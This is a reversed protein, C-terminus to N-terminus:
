NSPRIEVRVGPEELDSVTTVRYLGPALDIPYSKGAPIQWQDCSAQCSTVFTGQGPLTSESASVDYSGADTIEVLENRVLRSYSEGTFGVVAGDACSTPSETRWRGQEWALPEGVCIPIACIPGGYIDVDALMEDLSEGFSDQFTARFDAATTPRSTAYWFQEFAEPGYRTLMWYVLYHGVAYVSREELASEAEIAIDIEDPTFSYYNPPTDQVLASALGEQLLPQRRPWASAQIAHVLEHEDISRTSFIDFHGDERDICGGFSYSCMEELLPSDVFYYTTPLIQDPDTGLYLAVAEMWAETLPVTGDCVVIDDDAAYSLFRGQAQVPPLGDDGDDHQCSAVCIALTSLLITRLAHMSSGSSEHKSLLCAPGHMDEVAQSGAFDHAGRDDVALLDIMHNGLPIVYGSSRVVGDVYWVTYDLDSDADTSDDESATLEYGDAHNCRLEAGLNMAAEPPHGDATLEVSLFAEGGIISFSYDLVLSGVLPDFTGFVVDPNILRRSYTGDGFHSCADTCTNSSLEFDVQFVLSGAPFAVQGTVPRWVALTSQLMEIQVNSIEKHESVVPFVDLYIAWEDTGNSAEFEALYFPCTSDGCNSPSYEAHGELPNEDDHGAGIGANMDLAISTGIDGTVSHFSAGRTDPAIFDFVGGSAFALAWEDIDADFEDACDDLLSCHLPLSLPSGVGENWDVDSANPDGIINPSVESVDCNGGNQAPNYYAEIVGHGSWLDDECVKKKSTAIQHASSCRETCLERIEADFAPYGYAAQDWDAVLDFDMGMNTPGICTNLPREPYAGFLKVPIGDPGFDWWSNSYNNNLCTIYVGDFPEGTEGGDRTLLTDDFCAGCFGTITAALFAHQQKM